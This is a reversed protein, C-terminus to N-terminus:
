HSSLPYRLIMRLPRRQRSNPELIIRIVLQPVRSIPELRITLRRDEDKGNSPIATWGSSVSITRRLSLRIAEKGWRLMRVVGQGM